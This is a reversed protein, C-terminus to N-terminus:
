GDPLSAQHRWGLCYGGFEDAPELLAAWTLSDYPPPEAVEELRATVLPACFVVFGERCRGGECGTPVYLELRDAELAEPLPVSGHVGLRGAQPRDCDYLSEAGPLELYVFARYSLALEPFTAAVARVIM